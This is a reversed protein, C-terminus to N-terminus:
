IFWWCTGAIALLVTILISLRYVWPTGDTKATVIFVAMVIAAILELCIKITIIM